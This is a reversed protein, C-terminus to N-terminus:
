LVREWSYATAKRSGDLYCESLPWPGEVSFPTELLDVALWLPDATDERGVILAQKALQGTYDRQQWVQGVRDEM